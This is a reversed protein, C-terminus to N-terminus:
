EKPPGVLSLKATSHYLPYELRLRVLDYQGLDRGLRAGVARVMEPYRPVDSTAAREPGKGLVELEFEGDLAVVDRARDNPVDEGLFVSGSPAGYGLLGPELFVDNVLVETPTGITSSLKIPFKPTRYIEGFVVTVVGQNGIEPNILYTEVGRYREGDGSAVEEGTFMEMRPLPRSCFEELLYGGIKESAGLPERSAGRERGSSNLIRSGQVRVRNRPRLMRLGVFASVIVIEYGEKTRSVVCSSLRTRAQYGMVASLCRFITRRNQLDNAQWEQSVGRAASALANFSAREGAHLEVMEEFRRYAGMVAEVQGKPVGVRAAAAGFKEMSIRSPVFPGAVMVDRETAVKHILWSLRSDLELLKQLQVPRRVDLTVLVQHFALKLATLAEVADREFGSIDESPEPLLSAWNEGLRAPVDVVCVDM